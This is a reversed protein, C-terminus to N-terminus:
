RELAFQASLSVGLAIEGPQVPAPPPPPPAPSMLGAGQGIVAIQRSVPYYGGGETITLLRASRFGAERAYLEARQRAARLALARAEDAAAETNELTFYPGEIQNAGASVLTDAIRGLDAIKRVRVTLSNRAEYGIIRPAEPEAPQQVVSGDPQRVPRERQPYFYQPQLHLSATQLDREAVGSRRLSAIAADMRTANTAMAEAATKAQTVVGISFTALDPRRESRGEATINLLVGDTTMASRVEATQAAAPSSLLLGVLFAVSRM